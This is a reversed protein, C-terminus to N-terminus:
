RVPINKRMSDYLRDKYKNLFKDINPIDSDVSDLFHSFLKSQGLHKSIDPAISGILLKNEDRKIRKNIEKAVAMHIVSSVM